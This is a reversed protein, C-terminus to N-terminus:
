VPLKNKFYKFWMEISDWNVKIKLCVYSLIRYFALQLFLLRWGKDFMDDELYRFYLVSSIQDEPCVDFGYFLIMTYTISAYIPNLNALHVFPQSLERFSVTASSFM